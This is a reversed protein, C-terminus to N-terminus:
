IAGPSLQRLLVRALSSNACCLAGHRRAERAWSGAELHAGFCITALEPLETHLQELLALRPREERNLDVLLLDLGQAEAPTRVERLTWGLPAAVVSVRSRVMLESGVLGLVRGPEGRVAPETAAPVGTATLSGM